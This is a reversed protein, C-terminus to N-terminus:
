LEKQTKNLVNYIAEITKPNLTVTKFKTVFCSTKEDKQASVVISPGAIWLTEVIGNEATMDLFHRYGKEGLVDEMAKSPGCLIDDKKPTDEALAPFTLMLLAIASVFRM